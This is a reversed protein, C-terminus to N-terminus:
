TAIHKHGGLHNKSIDMVYYPRNTIFIGNFVLWGDTSATGYQVNIPTHLTYICRFPSLEAINVFRSLTAASAAWFPIVSWRCVKIIGVLTNTNIIIIAFSKTSLFKNIPLWSQRRHHRCHCFTLRIECVPHFSHCAGSQHNPCTRDTRTCKMTNQGASYVHTWRWYQEDKQWIQEVGDRQSLTFLNEAENFISDWEPFQHTATLWHHHHHNDHHHHHHTHTTHSILQYYSHLTHRNDYKVVFCILDYTCLFASSCSEGTLNINHTLQWCATCTFCVCM